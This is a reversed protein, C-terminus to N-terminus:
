IATELHSPFMISRVTREVGLEQQYTKLRDIELLTEATMCSRGCKLCHVVPVNEIILMAKGSGYVRAVNRIKAGEEKCLLCKM